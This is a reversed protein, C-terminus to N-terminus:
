DKKKVIKKKIKEVVSKVKSAEKAVKKKTTTSKKKTESGKKAILADLRKRAEVSEKQAAALIAQKDQSM